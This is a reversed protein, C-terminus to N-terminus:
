KLISIFNKEGTVGEISFRFRTNRDPTFFTIEALGNDDTQVCPNWYLTTRNDYKVAKDNEVLEYNPSYFKSPKQWGLPTVIITHPVGTKAPYTKRTAVLIVGGPSNYLGGSEGTRLVAVNEIQYVSLYELEEQESKVHDIYVVPVFPKGYPDIGSSVLRRRGLEDKGGYQISSFFSVIYDILLASDYPELQKRERIQNSSFFQNYPSPNIAPKVLDRTTTVVAAPLEKVTEGKYSRLLEELIEKTQQESPSTKERLFRYPTVAPFFRNDIDISYGTSSQQPGSCFLMFRTGDTFDLDEVHFRGSRSLEHSLSLNIDPAYLTLNAKSVRNLIGTVKGSLTQTYEKEIVPKRQAGELIAELDYYRWGQTLMLLDMAEKREPQSPDFYDAPDEIAGVLESSLLMYSLLHDSPKHPALYHDTVSLSFRGAVANYLTDRLQITYTMKERKGPDEKDATIDATIVDPPYVFFLRQAYVRGDEDVITAHHIGHLLYADELVSYYAAEEMPKCLFLESGNSLAFFLKRELLSPTIKAAIYRKGGRAAIHIVAGAESPSPLEKRIEGGLQSQVIAYYRENPEPLLMFKGMGNCTDSFTLMLSDRSDYVAGTVGLGRGETDVAKYAIVGLDGYLYRGSEPLFQIDFLVSPLANPDGTTRIDARGDTPNIVTIEKHFMYAEPANQMWATYARLMYNGSPLDRDLPIRGPFGERTRKIMVRSLVGEGILEVYVYNSEPLLSVVSSNEVYSNFWIYEGACYVQKDTHLYVKEPSSFALFLGFRSLVGDIPNSPQALCSFTAVHFTFVIFICFRQMKAYGKRQVSLQVKNFLLNILIEKQSFALFTELVQYM